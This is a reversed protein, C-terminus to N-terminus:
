TTFRGIIADVVRERPFVAAYREFHAALDFVFAKAAAASLTFAADLAGFFTELLENDRASM